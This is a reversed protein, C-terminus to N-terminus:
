NINLLDSPTGFNIIKGERLEILKDCKRITSIRHAVIVITLGRSLKEISTVFDEETQNDLASTAEDLILIESQKYLARAIGIRQRQGGSLRVGREGTITRYKNPLSMIFRDLQAQRSCHRILKHDIENEKCGLAINSEISSDSLYISQPVHSISSRWSHILEKNNKGLLNVGDVLIEGKQPQLLGMIIDILTSKGSGTKGIIGIRQGKIIELSLDNISYDSDNSYSYYINKLILSKNLNFNKIVKIKHEKEVKKNLLDIVSSIEFSYSRVIAWNLYVQQCAPLLRQAGLALTGLIPIINTGLGSERSYNYAVLAIMILGVAELAFRPFISLFNSEGQRIRRKRDILKYSHIYFGQNRNVLIDRIAGLGEQILKIQEKSANSTILSNARLRSKVSLGIIYYSSSVIILSFIAIGSNLIFLTLIIFLSIILSTLMQLGANIATITGSIHETVTGITKSTNSNLHDIYPKYLSNSYCKCSLDSGILASLRFGFSLTALRILSSCIVATCFFCTIPLLLMSSKIVGLKIAITRVQELQWIQSPDTLVSLFPVLAAISFSEAFASLIM